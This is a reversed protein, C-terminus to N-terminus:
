KRAFEEIADYQTDTEISGPRLDRVHWIAQSATMGQAVFYAALITGTRGLGATCHVAVAMGSARAREIAAVAQTLQEQTPASMDPVPLHVSLLGADNIWRRPPPDDTLSILLDVGNDRLWGLDEQDRPFALAAVHQAVVWSFGTPM